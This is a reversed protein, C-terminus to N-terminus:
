AGRHKGGSITGNSGSLSTVRSMNWESKGNAQLNRSMKDLIAAVDTFDGDSFAVFRPRLSFGKKLTDEEHDPLVLIIRINGLLQRISLIAWLEERSAALLVAIAISNAPRRLRVCLDEVTRYVKIEKGPIAMEIMDLLRSGAEKEVDACLIANM